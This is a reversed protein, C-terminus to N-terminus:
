QASVNKTHDATEIFLWGHDDKIAMGHGLEQANEGTVEIIKATRLADIIEKKSWDAGLIAVGGQRFTHVTETNPLRAVAAEFLLFEKKDGKTQNDM